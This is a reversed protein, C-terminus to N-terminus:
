CLMGNTLGDHDFEHRMTAPNNGRGMGGPLSSFAGDGIGESIRYIM